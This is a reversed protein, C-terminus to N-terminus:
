ESRDSSHGATKKSSAVTVPRFVPLVLPPLGMRAVTSQIYERCYPWCNHVGNLEGFAAFNESSLGEHSSLKYDAIFKVDIKLAPEGSEAEKYRGSVGLQVSVTIIGREENYSAETNLEVLMRSPMKEDEISSGSISSEVLRIRLLEVRASVVTAMSLKSVPAAAFSPKTDGM